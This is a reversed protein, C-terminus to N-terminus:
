ASATANASNMKGGVTNYTNTLSNGLGQMATIVAVGLFAAILGYEIATAGAQDGLMKRLLRM